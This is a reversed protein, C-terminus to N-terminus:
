FKVCLHLRIQHSTQDGSILIRLLSTEGELVVVVITSPFIAAGVNTFMIRGLDFM